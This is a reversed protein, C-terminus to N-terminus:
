PSFSKGKRVVSAFERYTLKSNKNKKELEKDIFFSFAGILVGSRDEGKPVNSYSKPKKEENLYSKVDKFNVRDEIGSHRTMIQFEKLLINEFNKSYFGNQVNQTVIRVFSPFDIADNGNGHFFDHLAFRKNPLSIGISALAQLKSADSHVHDSTHFSLKNHDDPGLLSFVIHLRQDYILDQDLRKLLKSNRHSSAM